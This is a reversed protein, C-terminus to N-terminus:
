YLRSLRVWRVLNSRSKRSLGFGNKLEEGRRKPSPCPTLNDRDTIHCQGELSWRGWIPLREPIAIRLIRYFVDQMSQRPPHGFGSIMARLRIYMAERGPILCRRTKLFIMIWNWVM